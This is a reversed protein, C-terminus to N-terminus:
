LTAQNDDGKRNRVCNCTFCLVRYGKPYDNRKLWRYLHHGGVIGLEKRQKLGGGGIHDITLADIEVIEIGRVLCTECIPIDKVSYHSLVEKKLVARYKADRARILERNRERWERKKQQGHPSRNYEELYAKREKKHEKQYIKQRALIEKRHTNYYEKCKQRNTEKDYM